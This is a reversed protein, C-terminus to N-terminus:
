WRRTPTGWWSELKVKPRVNITLEAGRYRETIGKQQESGKAETISLPRFARLRAARHPDARVGRPPHVGRGEEDSGETTLRPARASGGLVDGPVGTTGRTGCGGASSRAAPIFQEPYGYM